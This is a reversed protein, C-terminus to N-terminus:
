GATGGPGLLLVVMLMSGVLSACTARPGDQEMSRLMDAFVFAQGGLMLAGGADLDRVEDSFGVLDPVNWSDFANARSAFVIKGGIGDREIFPWALEEPVDRDGIPRLDDPPRLRVLTAASPGPSSTSCTRDIM